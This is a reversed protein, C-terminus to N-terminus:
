EVLGAVKANFEQYLLFNHNIFTYKWIIRAGKDKGSICALEWFKRICFRIATRETTKNRIFISAYKSVCETAMSVSASSLITFITAPASPM